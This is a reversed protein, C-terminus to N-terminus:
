PLVVPSSFRFCDETLGRGIYDDFARWYTSLVVDCGTEALAEGLRDVKDQELIIQSATATRNLVGDVDLFLLPTRRADAGSSSQLGSSAARPGAARPRGAGAGGRLHPGGRAPNLASALRVVAAGM